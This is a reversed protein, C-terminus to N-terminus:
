CDELEHFLPYSKEKIKLRMYKHIYYNMIGVILKFIM